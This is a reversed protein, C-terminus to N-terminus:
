LLRNSLGTSRMKLLSPPPLEMGIRIVPVRFAGANPRSLPRTMLRSECHSLQASDHTSRARLISRMGIAQGRRTGRLHMASRRTLDRRGSAPHRSSDRSASARYRVPCSKRAEVVAELLFASPTENQPIPSSGRTDPFEVGGSPRRRFPRTHRALVADPLIRKVDAGDSAM